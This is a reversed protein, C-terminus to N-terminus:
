TPKLLKIHNSNCSNICILVKVIKNGVFILTKSKFFKSSYCFRPWELNLDITSMKKIKHTTSQIRKKETSQLDLSVVELTNRVLLATDHRVSLLQFLSPSKFARLSSFNFLWISFPMFTVIKHEFDPVLNLDLNLFLM